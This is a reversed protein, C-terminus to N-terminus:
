ETLPLIAETMSVLDTQILGKMTSGQLDKLSTQKKKPTFPFVISPYQLITVSDAQYKLLIIRVGPYAILQFVPLLFSPSGNVKATYSM